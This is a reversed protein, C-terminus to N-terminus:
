LTVRGSFVSRVVAVMVFVVPCGTTHRSNDRDITQLELVTNAIVHPPHKRVLDVISTSSSPMMVASRSASISQSASLHATPLTSSKCIVPLWNLELRQV